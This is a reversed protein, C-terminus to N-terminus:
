RVSRFPGCTTATPTSSARRPWTATTPVRLRRATSEGNMVQEAIRWRRIDFLRHGEFALEVRRERRVLERLKTQTAYKTRDVPPMGARDRIDDLYDYINPDSLQNLEIAAEVYNLLVVAYRMNQFDLKGGDTSSYNTRDTENAWKKIWYGTKTSGERASPTRTRLSGRIPRIASSPRPPSSSRCAWVRIASKPSRTSSTPGNRM